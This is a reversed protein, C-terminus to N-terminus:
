MIAKSPCENTSMWKYQANNTYLALSNSSAKKYVTNTYHVSGQLVGETVIYVKEM